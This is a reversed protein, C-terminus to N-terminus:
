KTIFIALKEEIFKEAKLMSILTGKTCDEEVVILNKDTRLVDYIKSINRHNIKMM